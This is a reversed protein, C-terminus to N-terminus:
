LGCYKLILNPFIGLILILIFLVGFAIRKHLDIYFYRLAKDTAKYYGFCSNYIYIAYTSSLLIIAGTIMAYTLSIKTGAYLSIIEDIFGGSGPAGILILFSLLLVKKAAYFNVSLLKLESILRTAFHKKILNAVLFLVMISFSHQIVSFVFYKQGVKGLLVIFSLNMHIISFYAFMKKLDSQRVFQLTAFVASILTIYAISNGYCQLNKEFLPIIFRVMLLSSFKLVISALLSSCATPSEVHVVPIWHYFPWIPMKISIGVILILFVSFNKIEFRYIENLNSTGTEIYIMILAVLVLLASVTSYLFLQLIANFSSNSRNSMIIYIPIISTEMLIFLLFMDKAYFAGMAIAEFLLISSFSIKEKPTKERTMWLTCVFCIVSIVLAFTTSFGDIGFWNKAIYTGFHSEDFNLKNPSINFLLLEYATLLLTSLTALLSVNKANTINKSNSYMVFFSGILPIFVTIFAIPLEFM